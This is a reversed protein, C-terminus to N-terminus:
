KREGLFLMPLMHAQLCAVVEGFAAHGRYAVGQIMHSALVKHGAGVMKIMTDDQAEARGSAPRPTSEGWRRAFASVNMM